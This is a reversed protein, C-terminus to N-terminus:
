EYFLYVIEGLKDKNILRKKITRVFDDYPYKELFSECIILADHYREAYLAAQIAVKRSLVDDPYARHMLGKAFQYMEEYYQLQFGAQVILQTNKDLNPYYDYGQLALRRAEQYNGQNMYIYAQDMLLNAYKDDKGKIAYPELEKLIAEKRKKYTEMDKNLISLANLINYSSHQYYTKFVHINVSELRYSIAKKNANVWFMPIVLLALALSTKHLINKIELHEIQKVLTM